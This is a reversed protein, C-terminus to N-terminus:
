RVDKSAASDVTTIVLIRAPEDSGSIYAHAMTGDFYISDGEELLLPAYFDTHLVLKGSVVYLFEEGPHSALGGVEAVSRKEVTNVAPHMKKNALDTCLVDTLYRATEVPSQDSKRSISRVGNRIPNASEGLFATIDVGLVQSLIYLNHASVPTQENEVRSLTAESINTLKALESLSLSKARRFAKLKSGIHLDQFVPRKEQRKTM